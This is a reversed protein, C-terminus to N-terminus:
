VVSKRDGLKEIDRYLRWNEKAMKAKKASTQSNYVRYQALVENIGYAYDFKKLIQLWTAFDERKTNTPMYIKGLKHTDYVATLCGISCTKLLDHYSIKEPVGIVGFVTGNEDIKEYASYSFAADNEKMFQLQTELKNPLWLDDSDLFAIYRGQAAEIATNRAVAAGSNQELKLVKIRGDQAAYRQAIALSQDTSCDDVMIMEWDQYTQSLVTQITKELFDSCNHIPTIIGVLNM